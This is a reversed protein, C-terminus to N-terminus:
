CIASPSSFTTPKQARAKCNREVKEVIMTYKEDNMDNWKHVRRKHAWKSKLAICIHVRRIGALLEVLSKSTIGGIWSFSTLLRFYELKEEFSRTSFSFFIKLHNGVYNRYSIPKDLAVLQLQELFRRKLYFNGILTWVLLVLESCILLQVIREFIISSPCSIINSKEM